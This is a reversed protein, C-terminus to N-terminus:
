CSLFFTQTKYEILRTQSYPRASGIAYQTLSFLGNLLFACVRKKRYFRGMVGWNIAFNRWASSSIFQTPKITYSFIQRNHLRWGNICTLRAWKQIEPNTLDHLFTQESQSFESNWRRRWGATAQINMQGYVNWNRNKPFTSFSAHHREYTKSSCLYICSLVVIRFSNKRLTMRDFIWCTILMLMEGTASPRLPSFEHQRCSM